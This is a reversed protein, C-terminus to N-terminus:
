VTPLPLEVIFKAGHGIDSECWIQGDHLDVIKKAIALGVGNSSEGGTPQASLRQFFGFLKAQDERSLGVGNDAVEVRALNSTEGSANSSANSSADEPAIYVRIKMTGGLPSYKVANSILNDFVQELREADGVYRVDEAIEVTMQQSKKEAASQYREAVGLVLASLSFEHPNLTINGLEIVAADLLNEILANMRFATSQIQQIVPQAESVTSIEDALVESLSLISHLPNKLDHAAISLMQTKFRNAADLETNQRAIEENAAALEINRLYHIETEAEKQQARLERDKAFLEAQEKERRLRNIRDALAFSFLVIEATNALPWSYYGWFSYPVLGLGMAVTYCLAIMSISIGVLVYRTSTNGYRIMVVCGVVAIVPFVLSGLSLVGFVSAFPAGALPMLAGVFHFMAVSILLWHLWPVRKRADFFVAFLLAYFAIGLGPFLLFVYEVVFGTQEPWWYQRLFGQLNAIHLGIATVYCVYVLYVRDRTSFLLMFNYLATLILVGLIFGNLLQEEYDRAMFSSVAEVRIPVVLASVRTAVRVYLIHETTDPLLLPFLFLRHAVARTAFPMESGTRISHWASTSDSEFVTVESLSSYGVCLFWDSIQSQKRLRLRLWYASQTVGLNLTQAKSPTFRAQQQPTLISDLSLNRSPDELVDFGTLAQHSIAEPAPVPRKTVVSTQAFIAEIGLGLIAVVAIVLASIRYVGVLANISFSCYPSALNM